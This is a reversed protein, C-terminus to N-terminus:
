MVSLGCLTALIELVSQCSPAAPRSQSSLGSSAPISSTVMSIDSGRASSLFVPFLRNSHVVWCWVRCYIIRESQIINILAEDFSERCVVWVLDITKHSNQYNRFRLVFKGLCVKIITPEHWGISNNVVFKRKFLEEYEKGKLDYHTKERYPM